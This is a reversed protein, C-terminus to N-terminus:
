WPRVNKSTRIPRYKSGCRLHKWQRNTRFRRSGTEKRFLRAVNASVNVTLLTDGAKVDYRGQEPVVEEHTRQTVSITKQENGCTVTLLAERDTSNSPNNGASLTLKHQGAAGSTKSVSLWREGGAIYDTKVKWEGPAQLDVEETAGQSPVNWQSVSLEFPLNGGSASGGDKDCQCFALSCVAFLSYLISMKMM